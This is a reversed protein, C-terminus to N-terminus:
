CCGGSMRTGFTDDIHLLNLIPLMQESHKYDSILNPCGDDDKNMKRFVDM